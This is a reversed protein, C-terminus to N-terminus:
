IDDDNNKDEENGEWYKNDDRTVEQSERGEELEKDSFGQTDFYKEEEDSDRNDRSEEERIESGHNEDVGEDINDSENMESDKYSEEDEGEASEQKSVCEEM